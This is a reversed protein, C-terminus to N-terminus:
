GISTSGATSSTIVNVPAGRNQLEHREKQSKVSVQSHLRRQQGGQLQILSKAQFALDRLSASKRSACYGRKIQRIHM